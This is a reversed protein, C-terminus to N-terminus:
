SNSRIVGSIRRSITPQAVVSSSRRSATACPMRVINRSAICITSSSTVVIESTTRVRKAWQRRDLRLTGAADTQEQEVRAKNRGIFWASLQRQDDGVRSGGHRLEGVDGDIGAAGGDLPHGLGLRDTGCTGGEDFLVEERGLDLLAAADEVELQRLLLHLLLLQHVERTLEGHEDLRPDRQRVREHRDPVLGLVDREPPCQRVEDVLEAVSAQERRRRGVMGLHKGLVVDADDLGGLQRALQVCRELAERSVELPLDLVRALTM